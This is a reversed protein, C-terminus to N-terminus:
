RNKLLTSPPKGFHKSFERSFEHMRAYGLHEAVQTVNLNSFSLLSRAQEMRIKCIRNIPTDGTARKCSRILTSKSYGAIKLLDNISPKLIRDRRIRREIAWWLESDEMKTGYDFSLEDIKNLINLLTSYAIIKRSMVNNSSFGKFLQGFLRRLEEDASFVRKEIPLPLLGAAQYGISYFIVEDKNGITEVEESQFYYVVDGENVNYTIGNIKLTYSGKTVLHLLHGSLSYCLHKFFPPRKFEWMGIISDIPCSISANPFDYDVNSM